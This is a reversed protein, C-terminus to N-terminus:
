DAAPERQERPALARDVWGLAMVARSWGATSAALMAAQELEARTVGLAHAKRAHARASTELGAGVAIGFKILERERGSLPGCSATSQQLAEYAATVEPFREQIALYGRPPPPLAPQEAM